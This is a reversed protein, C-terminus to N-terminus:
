RVSAILEVKEYSTQAISAFERQLAREAKSARLVRGTNGVSWVEALFYTQGYRHFILRPNSKDSRSQIEHTMRIALDKANVSRVMLASGDQMPSSVSYRGASLTKDGVVFDFPIQAYLRQSTQAQATLM